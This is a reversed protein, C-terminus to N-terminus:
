KFTLRLIKNRGAAYATERSAFRITYLDNDHYLLTWTAGSDASYFLGGYGVTVLEKGKGGPVFQVCSIYGPGSNEGILLWTKGGDSTIAKNAHNQKLDDYDGGAVFGFNKDYFDASFIGTMAKGQVIPTQTVSWTKGKDHSHYVRAKVGGSVIWTSNGKVVINTNSAAFAAEGSVVKPVESCSLKRWTAGGNRTILISLCEEVPDGIAIGEKHNWFRMSDYFTKENNESYMTQMQGNEKDVKVLYAPSGANLIFLDPMTAAISRFELGDVPAKAQAHIKTALNISGFKSENAAYWLKNDDIEIARVSIKDVLLTDVILASFVKNVNIDSPKCGLILFVSLISLYLKM